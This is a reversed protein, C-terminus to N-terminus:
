LDLQQIKEKLTNLLQILRDLNALARTRTPRTNITWSLVSNDIIIEAVATQKNTEFDFYHYIKGDVTTRDHKRHCIVERKRFLSHTNGM